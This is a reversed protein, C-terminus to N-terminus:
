RGADPRRGTSAAPPLASHRTDPQPRQRPLGRQSRRAQARHHDPNRPHGAVVPIQHGLLPHRTCARCSPNRAAASGGVPRRQRVWGPLDPTRLVAPAHMRAPPAAHGIPQTVPCRARVAQRAPSGLASSMTSAPHASPTGATCSAATLVAAATLAPGRRRMYENDRLRLARCLGDKGCAPNRRPDPRRVQDLHVPAPPRRRPIPQAPM